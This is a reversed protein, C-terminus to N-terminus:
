DPKTVQMQIYNVFGLKTLQRFRARWFSWSVRHSVWLWSEGCWGDAPKAGSDTKKVMFSFVNKKKEGRRKGHLMAPLRVGTKLKAM